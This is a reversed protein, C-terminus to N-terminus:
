SSGTGAKIMQQITKYTGDFGSGSYNGIKFYPVGSGYPLQQQTKATSEAIADLQSGDKLCSTMKNENVGVEKAIALYFEDKLKPIPTSSPNTGIGKDFYDTTLKAILADYYPWFKEQEAACYVAESAHTSNKTKAELLDTIRLEMFLKGSKIYDEDFTSDKLTNHFKACYPCIPDSYQIFKNPAEESGQTMNINWVTASHPQNNALNTNYIILAVLFIGIGAFIIWKTKNM